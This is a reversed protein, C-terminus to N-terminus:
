HVVADNVLAQVTYGQETLTVLQPILDTDVVEVLSKQMLEALATDVRVAAFGLAQSLSYGNEQDDSSLLLFISAAEVSLGPVHRGLAQVTRKLIDENNGDM